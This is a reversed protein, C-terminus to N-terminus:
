APRVAQRALLRWHSGKKQWVTLILLKISNISGDASKLQAGMTHRVLTTKGSPIVTQNSIKIDVFDSSGDLLAAMFEHQNQVAGNSHGYSLQPMTIDKLGKEVPDILLKSLTNVAEEVTKNQATALTGLLLILALILPIKKM